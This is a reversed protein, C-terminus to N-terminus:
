CKSEVICILDTSVGNVYLESTNKGKLTRLGFLFVACEGERRTVAQKMKSVIGMQQVRDM